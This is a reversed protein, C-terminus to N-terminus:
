IFSFEEFVPTQEPRLCFKRFYIHHPTVKCAVYNGAKIQSIPPSGDKIKQLKFVSEFKEIVQAFEITDTVVEAKGNIEISTLSKKNYILLTVIPNQVINALKRTKSKTVFYLVFDARTYFYIAAMEPVGKKNISALTAISYKQLFTHLEEKQIM